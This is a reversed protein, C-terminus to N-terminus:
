LVVPRPQRLYCCLLGRRPQVPKSCCLAGGGGSRGGVACRFHLLPLFGYFKQGLSELLRFFAILYYPEGDIFVSSALDQVVDGGPLGRERPAAAPRSARIQDVLRSLLTIGEPDLSISLLHNQVELQWCGGGGAAPFDFSIESEVGIRKYSAASLDTGALDRRSGLSSHSLTGALAAAHLSLCRMTLHHRAAGETM